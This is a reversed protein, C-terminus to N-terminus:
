ESPKIDDITILISAEENNTPCMFSINVVKGELLQKQTDEGLYCKHEQGCVPCNFVYTIYKTQKNKNKSEEEGKFPM